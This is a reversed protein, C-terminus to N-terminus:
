SIRKNNRNIIEDLEDHINQGQKTSSEKLTDKVWDRMKALIMSNMGIRGGCGGAQDIVELIKVKDDPNWSTAHKVDIKTL